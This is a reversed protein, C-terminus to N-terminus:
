IVRKVPCGDSNQLLFDIKKRKPVKKVAYEMRLADGRSPFQSAVLLKVPRRGRTYKAGKGKNHTAIRTEVSTTIGTYYSGGKCEVIYVWWKM